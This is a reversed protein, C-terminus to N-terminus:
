NYNIKESFEVDEDEDNNTRGLMKNYYKSWRNEKSDAMKRFISNYHKDIDLIANFRSPLSLEV